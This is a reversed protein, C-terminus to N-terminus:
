DLHELAYLVVETGRKVYVGGGANLFAKSLRRRYWASSRLHADGDTRIRDCNREWDERTLVGFFLVAHTLRALKDLARVAARRNLYQLVDHCIVLDFGAKHEYEEISACQWGFRQCAYDSVDIADIRVGPFARRLGDHLLGAGCGADLITEIPCDLFALYAGIFGAMRDFYSPEAVRTNEDFYFREFYAEDFSGSKVAGDRM